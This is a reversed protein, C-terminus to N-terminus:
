LTLEDEGLPAFYADVDAQTVGALDAPTWAPQDGKDIVTCRIGEFFDHGLLMRRLVRYEMRMCDDMSLRLGRSISQFTVALSTPSKKAITELVQTAFRDEPAAARLSDIVGALTTRSFHNGISRVTEPDTERRAASFVERLALDPEGTESIREILGALYEAKTTHTAIGSWLADGYRIRTGTLALYMGFSAGLDALLHSGGVDPFFGIGVEPMAFQANETLVRHSGHCSVGVGGGMVIGDILAVYPKPYRAIYANLRYEDAFFEYPVEGRQRAKYVALIDGGASFARGEARIVVAAVHPDKEWAQLAATLAKIMPHTLANLAQPRTLSVLGIAGLKEFRIDDGGGFDM